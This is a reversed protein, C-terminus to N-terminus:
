DGGRWGGCGGYGDGGSGDSGVIVRVTEMIGVGAIVEVVEVDVEEM